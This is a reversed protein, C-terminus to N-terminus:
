WDTSKQVEPVGMLNYPKKSLRSHLDLGVYLEM